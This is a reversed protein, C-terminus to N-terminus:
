LVTDKKVRQITLVTNLLLRHSMIINYLLVLYHPVNHGFPHIYSLFGFQKYQTSNVHTPDPAISVDSISKHGMKISHALALTGEPLIGFSVYM